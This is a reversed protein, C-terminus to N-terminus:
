NFDVPSRIIDHRCILCIVDVQGEAPILRLQKPHDRSGLPPMKGKRVVQLRVAGRLLLENLGASFYRLFIPGNASLWILM